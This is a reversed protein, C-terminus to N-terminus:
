PEKITHKSIYSLWRNRDVPKNLEIEWLEDWANEIGLIAIRRTGSLWGLITTIEEAMKDLETKSYKSLIM